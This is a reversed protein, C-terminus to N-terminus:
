DWLERENEFAMYAMEEESRPEELHEKISDAFAEEDLLEYGVLGLVGLSLHGANRDNAVVIPADLEHDRVEGPKLNKPLAKLQRDDPFRATLGRRRLGRIVNDANVYALLLLRGTM